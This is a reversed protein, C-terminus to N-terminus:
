KAYLASYKEREDAPLPAFLDKEYKMSGQYLEDREAPWRPLLHFHMHDVKLAGQPIFPRYNQRVDCGPAIGSDVIWRQYLVVQRYLDHQERKTLEWASEAHRVPMILLHGPVLRPNSLMGLVHERRFVVRSKEADITCFPCVTM